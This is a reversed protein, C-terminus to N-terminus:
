SNIELNSALIHSIYFLVALQLDLVEMYNFFFSAIASYLSRVKIETQAIYIHVYM